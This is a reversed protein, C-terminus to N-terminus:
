PKVVAKFYLPISEEQANSKLIINKDVNGTRGKSNFSIAIEGKAGPAVPTKTYAPVTCGCTAVVEDIILPHSGTNKFTYVHEVVDGDKITGFDYTDKDFKISTKPHKVANAEGSAAAGSPLTGAEIHNAASHNPAAVAKNKNFLANQSVGSLEIIAITLASLTLLTLLVTKLTGNM